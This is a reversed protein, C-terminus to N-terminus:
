RCNNDILLVYHAVGSKERARMLSFFIMSFFIGASWSVLACSFVVCCLLTFSFFFFDPPRQGLPAGGHPRLWGKKSNKPGGRVPETRLVPHCIAQCPQLVARRVLVRVRHGAFSSRFNQLWKSPMTAPATCSVLPLGNPTSPGLQPPRCARHAQGAESGVWQFFGSASGAFALLGLGAWGLGALGARRCVGGGQLSFLGACRRRSLPPVRM